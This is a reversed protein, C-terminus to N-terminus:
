DETLDAEHSFTRICNKTQYINITVGYKEKIFRLMKKRRCYGITNWTDIYMKFRERRTTNEIKYFKFGEPSYAELYFMRIEFGYVQWFAKLYYSIKKM